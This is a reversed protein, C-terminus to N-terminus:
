AKQPGNPMSSLTQKPRSPRLAQVCATTLQAAAAPKSKKNRVKTAAATQGAVRQVPDAPSRMVVRRSINAVIRVRDKYRRGIKRNCAQDPAGGVRECRIEIGSAKSALM